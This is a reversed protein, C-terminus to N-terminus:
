SLLTKDLYSLTPPFIVSEPDKQREKLLQLWHIKEGTWTKRFSIGISVSSLPWFLSLSLGTQLYLHYTISTMQTGTVSPM